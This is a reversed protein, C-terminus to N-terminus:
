FIPFAQIPCPSIGGFSQALIQFVGSRPGYSQRKTQITCRANAHYHYFITGNAWLRCAEKIQDHNIKSVKFTHLINHNKQSCANLVEVHQPSTMLVLKLSIKFNGTASSRRGSPGLMSRIRKGNRLALLTYRYKIQGETPGIVIGFTGDRHSSDYDKESTRVKAEEFFKIYVPDVGIKAHPPIVNRISTTPVNTEDHPLLPLNMHRDDGLNAIAKDYVLTKFAVMNGYVVLLAFLTWVGPAKVNGMFLSTM